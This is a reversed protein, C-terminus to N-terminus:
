QHSLGIEIIKEAIKDAANPVYFAKAADRMQMVKVPNNLIDGIEALLIHQSLNKEEIVICADARMYNYANKRAHDNNSITFPIIISPVEWSAIEFITSGARSIVLDAVGGAMRMQLPSLFAQPKYRFALDNNHLVVSATEKVTDFNLKGTRHMIQDHKVLEPLSELIVQKIIQAGSSGGVIFLTPITSELNFYEVAGTPLAHELESRVPQGTRATKGVPFYQACEGYSLAIYQAFKGAWKTVRGPASDSEHIIVPIGFLRAAFLTPFSAYAGKAFVVDPYLNFVKWIAILVGFGTKFLDFFNRISGGLRLKGAPISQFAIRNNFLADADYPSDSFYHVSVNTIKREIVQKEIAEAVAILPYFHGGTGGGTLLIKM